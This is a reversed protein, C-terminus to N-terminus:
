KQVYSKIISVFNKVDRFRLVYMLNSLNIFCLLLTSILDLYYSPRDIDEAQEKFFECNQKGAASCIFYNKLNLGVSEVNQLYVTFRTLLFVVTLSYYLFLTFLKAEPTSFGIFLIKLISLFSRSNNSM